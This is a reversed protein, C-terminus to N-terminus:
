PVRAPSVSRRDGEFRLEPLVVSSVSMVGGDRMALVGGGPHRGGCMSWTPPHRGGQSLFKVVKPDYPLRSGRILSYLSMVGGDTM